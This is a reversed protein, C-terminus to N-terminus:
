LRPRELRPHHLVGVPEVREPRDPDGAAQHEPALAALREVVRVLGEGLLALRVVVGPHEVMEEDLEELELRPHGGRGAAPERRVAGREDTGEEVPQPVLEGSVLDSIRTWAQTEPGRFSLSRM